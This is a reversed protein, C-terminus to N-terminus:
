PQMESLSELLPEFLPELLGQMGSIHEFRETGISFLYLYRLISDQFFQEFTVNEHILNQLKLDNYGTLWEIVQHLEEKTRGKKEVKALYFPYVDAFTLKAIRDDHNNTNNM